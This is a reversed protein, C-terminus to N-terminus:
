AIVAIHDAKMSDELRKVIDAIEYDSINRQLSLQKMEADM